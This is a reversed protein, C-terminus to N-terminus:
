GKGQGFRRAEAADTVADRAAPPLSVPGSPAMRREHRRERIRVQILRLDARDITQQLTDEAAHAAWGLSFSVPCMSAARSQIREAVIGTAELITGAVVVVFEDGGYRIVTDESRVCQNLFRSVRVLAADGAQHGHVDNFRKFGDIDIVIAGWIAEDQCLRLELDQLRRRNYCGTLADRVSLERLQEELQKRQTIDVLIGHFLRESTDPDIVVYATDLVTIEEGNLRRLRLEFDRVMGEARLLGLERVRESPDAFLSDTRHQQLSPLSGVGLMELLAPNADLIRGSESSIYIGQPLNAVLRQLTGPDSLSRHPM